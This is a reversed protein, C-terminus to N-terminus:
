EEEITSDVEQQNESDINSDLVIDESLKEAEDIKKKSFELANNVLSIVIDEGIELTGLLIRESLEDEILKQVSRRLPRAGYESNYGHNVIFEKAEKEVTISINRVRLRDCLGDIMISAIDYMNEKNLKHFVIVEDIRNIFEPRMTKKLSELQADRMDDYDDSSMSGFGLKTSSNIEGAGINSTMIIITNKFSVIRGHSDTLRGDDLIQLLINFVDPHAKEIEDFLVVSYPKRRVKETLQGGEEFGVLGPASGILRAVNSKDMYESMDVRIMLNEDGFMSGALVKSLETKGVGTPGLFIFSGIPRNPDKLGARARRVARSISAVAENQGIVRMSLEKELNILRDSETETLKVIPVGTQNSIIQSIEEEGISLKKGTRLNDWNAKEVALKERVTNRYNKLEEALIFNQEKVANSLEITLCEVESQMDQLVRPEVSSKTRMRSAAEDILDIAKDPLFRDAIYRDSLVAAARIAESTIIVSHHKEYKEKIGNLINITDEVSPPNVLIPQFRRELAPDKEINTRYEDITTAGITQLEGRALMPKLINGADMSGGETKGAGTIMHIEDIFLIINGQKKITEIANKFKEEFDGRYKTGSLLSSMDLSFIRKGKLMEPVNGGIIASALGEVIATKGVGAEGILVPNNKTRRSLIQVIRDIEESRGIVPDIMGDEAKSTLDIGLSELGGIKSDSSSKDINMSDSDDYLSNKSVVMNRNSQLTKLSNSLSLTLANLDVGLQKLAKMGYSERDELMVILLIEPLIQDFGHNSAINFSQDLVSKTRPSIRPSNAVASFRLVKSVDLVNFGVRALIAQVNTNNVVAMACIIHETGVVGGSRSGFEFAKDLIDKCEKSYKEM